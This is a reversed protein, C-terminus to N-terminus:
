GFQTHHTRRCATSIDHILVQLEDEAENPCEDEVVLDGHAKANSIALVFSTGSGFLSENCIQLYSQLLVINNHVM